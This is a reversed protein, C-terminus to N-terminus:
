SPNQRLRGAGKPPMRLTCGRLDPEGLFPWYLSVIKGRIEGLIGDLHNALSHSAIDWDVSSLNKREEILRARENEM